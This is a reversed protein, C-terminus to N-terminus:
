YVGSVETRGNTGFSNDPSGDTNLRGVMAFIDPGQIVYGVKVIKGDTQVALDNVRPDSGNLSHQHYGANSNGFPSDLAGEPKYRAVHFETAVATSSYGAVLIRGNNQLAVSTNEERENAWRYKLHGNDAFVADPLGPNQAFAGISLM